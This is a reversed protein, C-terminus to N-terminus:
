VLHLGPLYFRLTTIILLCCLLLFANSVVSDIVATKLPMSYFYLLLAHQTIIVLWCFIFIVRFRKVSFPSAAM